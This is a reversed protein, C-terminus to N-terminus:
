TRFEFTTEGGPVVIKVRHDGPGLDPTSVNLRVVAGPEWVSGGLVTLSVDSRYEGDVIVDVRDADDPLSASGTNKVLLTVNEAGSANYVTSGPDSIVQVDTRLQRSVDQGSDDLASTVRTAEQTVTVAVSSAVVISAIFIVMHSISVSAM